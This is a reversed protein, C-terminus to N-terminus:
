CAFYSYTLSMYQSSRMFILYFCYYIIFPCYFISKLISFYSLIAKLHDIPGFKQFIAPTNQFHFLETKNPRLFLIKCIGLMNKEGRFSQEEFDCTWLYLNSETIWLCEFEFKIIHVKYKQLNQDM